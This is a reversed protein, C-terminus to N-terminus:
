NTSLAVGAVPTPLPAPTYIINPLIERAVATETPMTQTQTATPTNTTTATVAVVTPPSQWLASQESSLWQWGGLLLVLMMAVMAMQRPASSAWFPRKQQPVAPMCQALRGNEALGAQHVTQKVLQGVQREQQVQALLAPDAGIQRTLREKEATPLLDLVYAQLLNPVHEAKKSYSVSSCLNECIKSPKLKHTRRFLRLNCLNRLNKVRTVRRSQAKARDKKLLSLRHKDTPVQIGKRKTHDSAKKDEMEIM